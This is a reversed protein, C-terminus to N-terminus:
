HASRSYGAKQFKDLLGKLRNVHEPKEHYRNSSEKPDEDLHYLQGEADGKEIPLRKPASFGGSGRGLVLKWAGQRIAFMGDLSHHVISTRLPQESQAGDLAGLLSFSDVAAHRPVDAGLIDALTAYIDTLCVLQDSTTGSRIVNPWRMILPVRHGGEWIDAKQGRWHGNARHGFRNIDAANWYAGNDSTVIVLTEKSLGCKELTRIIQGVTWDVQAVFDGYYGADSKGKFATAPLWPTHPASLPLYMFFPSRGNTGVDHNLIFRTARKTLRPLVDAHRFDPAIAGPRWFGNGKQKRLKSGPIKRTPFRQVTDNELYVYPEFDLSSPIGFYTDFGCEVPGPRLPKFYDTRKSDGLGLHWKGIGVTVYGNAKMFQPLTLRSSDILYPDYGRLVGRKLRTRWCYRGTLLGYRTPTCVSSPSHADIFRMGEAALRDMQPTPIKSDPNYSVLDGYGMDDALIIIVNPNRSAGQCIDYYGSLLFSIVIMLTLVHKM